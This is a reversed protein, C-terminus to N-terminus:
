GFIDDASLTLDPFSQPSLSQGRRIQRHVKYGRPSPRRYVEVSGGQLDVLWVESIGARAYLPLKAERDYDVSTEAVEVVLLVDEPGPHAPAYFDARPKLLALDPQPELREGLRIPNQVWVIGREQVRFFLTALRTVCAAHRSGIPAMEVIEGDLLEVRDDELLIGARAMQHYEDVTFLRKRVQALASM